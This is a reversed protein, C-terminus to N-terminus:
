GREDIERPGALGPDHARRTACPLPKPARLAARYDCRMAARRAVLVLASVKPQDLPSASCKRAARVGRPEDIDVQSRRLPTSPQRVDWAVGVRAADTPHVGARRRWDRRRDKPRRALESGLPQSM